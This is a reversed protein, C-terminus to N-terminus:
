FDAENGRMRLGIGSGGAVKVIIKKAQSRLQTTALLFMSQGRGSVCLGDASVVTM